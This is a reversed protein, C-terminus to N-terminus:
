WGPPAREPSARRRLLSVAVHGTILEFGGVGCSAYFATQDVGVGFSACALLQTSAAEHRQRYLSHGTSVASRAPTQGATAQAVAFQASQAAMQCAQESGTQRQFRRQ